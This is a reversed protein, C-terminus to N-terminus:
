VGLGEMKQKLEALEQRKAKVQKNIDLQRDLHPEKRMKKQVPTIKQQM